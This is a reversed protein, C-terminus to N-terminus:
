RLAWPSSFQFTGVGRRGKEQWTRWCNKSLILPTEVIAM